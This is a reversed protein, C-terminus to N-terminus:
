ASRTTQLLAAFVLQLYCYVHRYTLSHPELLTRKEILNFKVLLVVMAVAELALMSKLAMALKKELRSMLLAGAFSAHLSVM